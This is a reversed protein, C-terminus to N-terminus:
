QQKVLPIQEGIEYDAAMQLKNQIQYFRAVKKGPLVKEFKSLYSSRLKERAEVAALYRRVLKLAEADSLKNYALAYEQVVQYLQNQVTLLDNQYKEYLPWFAKAEADTLQLNTAVLAKVNARAADRVIDMTSQSADDARVAPAASLLLAAIATTLLRSLKM